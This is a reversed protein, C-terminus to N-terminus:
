SRQMRRGTIADQLSVHGRDRTQRIEPDLNGELPPGFADRADSAASLGM